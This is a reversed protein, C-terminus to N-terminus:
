PRGARRQRGVVPRGRTRDTRRRTLPVGLPVHVQKPASYARARRRVAALGTRVPQPEVLSRGM